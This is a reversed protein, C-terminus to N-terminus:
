MNLLTASEEDLPEDAMAHSWRDPVSPFYFREMATRFRKRYQLPTVITPEGRGGGGFDKVWSEVKKDRYTLQLM